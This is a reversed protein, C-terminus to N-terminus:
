KGQLLLGLPRLPGVEIFEYAAYGEVVLPMKDTIAKADAATEVNMLFIPGLPSEKFWYQAVIGDLYLQLTHPVERPMIRAREEDSIPKIISGIAFVQM